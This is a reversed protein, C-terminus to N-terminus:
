NNIRHHYEPTDNTIPLFYYGRELLSPIITKMAEITPPETDHALLYITNYECAAVRDIEAEATIPGGDGTSCNWDYYKYGREHVQASLRSMIGVSYRKSITNSSGGAFRMIKPEFGVQAKVRQSITDLDAFFTQESAYISYNHTNTHLGISHNGKVIDQFVTDDGRGTVFFTVRVKNDKLTQLLERTYKSPGDDFTLYVIKAGPPPTPYAAPSDPTGAPINPKSPNSTEPPQTQEGAPPEKPKEEQPTPVTGQQSNDPPAGPKPPQSLFYLVGFAGATLLLIASLIVLVTKPKRDPRRQYPQTYNNHQITMTISTKIKDRALSKQRETRM